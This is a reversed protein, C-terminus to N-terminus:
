FGGQNQLRAGETRAITRCRSLEFKAVVKIKQTLTQFTADGGLISEAFMNQLRMNMRRVAKENHLNGYAIQTFPSKGVGPAGEVLLAQLKNRDYMAWRQQMQVSGPLQEEIGRVGARYNMEFINLSENQMMRAATEGSRALDVAISRSIGEAIDIRRIYNEKFTRIQEPSLSDWMGTDIEKEFLILREIAARHKRGAEKAAAHYVGQLRRDLNRVTRQTVADM